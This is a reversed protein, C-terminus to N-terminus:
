RPITAVLRRYRRVVQLLNWGLWASALASALGAPVALWPLLPTGLLLVLAALHAQWQRHMATEALFSNMPPVKTQARQQLHLWALFPVIKYLMGTIFSLFGGVILLIGFSPAWAARAALVPFAVALWPMLLALASAMLGLQWYRFTTDARARRRRSQLQLTLLAFAIGSAALALQAMRVLAPLDFLLAASWVLLTLMIALPFLWGPRAPYGPTLQFMPVVVFAVAALLVGAWGGLGWGAHLDALERVPLPWGRALTFALLLGLGVVVPLAGLALKLGRISPSTSPVRWLALAAAVLFVLVTAALLLSGWELLRLQGFRLGAVLLLAGPTLGGHVVRAVLLPRALSAGAVVPLIQILAGFMIQLMFGVTLLHTLALASPTWRSGLAAGSDIALLMGAMVGFLPATLFFRLPAAFPPAKDFSLLAKM